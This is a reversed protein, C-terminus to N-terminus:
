QGESEPDQTDSGPQALLQAMKMIMDMSEKQEDNLMPSFSDMLNQIQDTKGASNEAAEATQDPSKEKKQPGANGKKNDRSLKDAVGVVEAMKVVQLAKDGKDRYEHPLAPRVVNYIDGITELAGAKRDGALMRNNRYIDINRNLQDIANYASIVYDLQKRSGHPIYSKMIKMVELGRVAPDSPVRLVSNRYRDHYTHDMIGRFTSVAEMIGSISYVAEQERDELYPSLTRLMQISQPNDLVNKFTSEIKNMLDPQFAKLKPWVLFGGGLILLLIGPNFPLMSQQKVPKLPQQLPLPQRKQTQTRGSSVPQVRAQSQAQSQGQQSRSHPSGSEEKSQSSSTYPSVTQERGPSSNSYPSDAQERYPSNNGTTKATTTRSPPPLEADPFLDRRPIFKQPPNKQRTSYTSRQIM